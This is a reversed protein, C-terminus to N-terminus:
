MMASLETNLTVTRTTYMTHWRKVDKWHYCKALEEDREEEFLVATSTALDVLVIKVWEM